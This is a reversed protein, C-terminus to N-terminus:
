EGGGGGEVHIWSSLGIFIKTEVHDTGEERTMGAGSSPLTEWLTNPLDGSTQSARLQFSEWSSFTQFVKCAVM